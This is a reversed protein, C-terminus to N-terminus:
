ALSQSPQKPALFPTSIGMSHWVILLLLGTGQILSLVACHKFALLTSRWSHAYEVFMGKFFILMARIWARLIKGLQIAEHSFPWDINTSQVTGGVVYPIYPSTTLLTSYLAMAQHWIGVEKAALEMVWTERLKWKRAQLILFIFTNRQRLTRHPSYIVM